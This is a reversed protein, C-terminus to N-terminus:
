PERDPRQRQAEQLRRGLAVLEKDPIASEILPFIEREELRVHAALRAGLEHLLELPAGDGILAVDRRILVHDVLMRVIMPHEPSAYAAYRPLLIEEELRFHDREESDWHSVLKRAQEAATAPTAERLRRALVLTHHHDRSLVALAPHRKM